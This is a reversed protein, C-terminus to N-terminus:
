GGTLFVADAFFPLALVGAVTDQFFGSEIVSLPAVLLVFRGVDGDASSEAGL